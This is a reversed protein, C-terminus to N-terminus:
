CHKVVLSSRGSPRQGLGYVWHYGAEDMRAARRESRVWVMDTMSAPNVASDGVKGECRHIVMIWELVLVMHRPL